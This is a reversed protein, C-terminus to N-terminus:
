KRLSSWLRQLHGPIPNEASQQLTMLIMINWNELQWNVFATSDPYVLSGGDKFAQIPGHHLAQGQSSDIGRLWIKGSLLQWSSASRILHGVEQM